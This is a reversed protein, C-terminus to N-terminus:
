VVGSIVQVIAKKLEPSISKINEVAYAVTEAWLELANSSSYESPVLKKDVALERLKESEYDPLDLTEYKTQPISLRKLVNTMKNTDYLTTRDKKVASRIADKIHNKVQIDDILISDPIIVDLDHSLKNTKNKNFNYLIDSIQNDSLKNAKPNESQYQKVVPSLINHKYWDIFWDKTEKNLQLWILHAAEHTITHEIPIISHKEPNTDVFISRSVPDVFASYTIDTNFMKPYKSKLIEENHNFDIFIIPITQSGFGLSGLKYDVDTLVKAKDSDLQGQKIENTPESSPDLIFPKFQGIKPVEIIQNILMWDKPQRFKENIIQSHFYSSFEM